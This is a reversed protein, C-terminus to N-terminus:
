QAKTQAEGPASENGSQDIATVRYTYATGVSVTGDLYQVETVPQATLKRFDGRAGARRYVLYGALDPAASARWVVRVKGAEALAVVDGPVPPPFRDVYKIEVEGRIISERLPSPDAISTVAYIYSDGFRATQDVVTRTDFFAARLPAGFAKATADRRYINFGLVKGGTAAVVGAADTGAPAGWALEIGDAKPTLHLDGPPPPPTKPLIAAQNSFASQDGKPGKLRVAFYRVLETTTAATGSATSGTKGAATGSAAATSTKGATATTTTGKSGATPATAATAGTAGAAAPAASAPPLEGVPLAIVVKDGLVAATVDAGQLKLKVKASAPLERADIPPFNGPLNTPPPPVSPAGVAPTAPVAPTGPKAPAGPASPKPATATPPPTATQPATTTSPATPAPTTSPTAPTSPAAGVSPATGTPPTATTGTAPTATAGTTTTPAPPTPTTPPPAARDLEYVEIETVGELVAGAATTKPYTFRLLIQDGRQAVSLDQTQAPVFRLPPLPPGKKGCGGLVLVPALALALTRLTRGLYRAGDRSSM